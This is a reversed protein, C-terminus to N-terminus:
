LHEGQMRVTDCVAGDLAAELRTSLVLQNVCAAHMVVTQARNTHHACGM